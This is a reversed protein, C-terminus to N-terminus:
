SDDRWALVLDAEALTFDYISGSYRSPLEFLYDTREPLEEQWIMRVDAIGPRISVSQLGSERSFSVAVLDSFAFAVAPDRAPLSCLTSQYYIRCTQDGRSVTVAKRPTRVATVL